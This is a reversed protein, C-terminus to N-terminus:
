CSPAAQRPCGVPQILHCNSAPGSRKCGSQLPLEALAPDPAPFAHLERDTEALLGRADSRQLEDSCPPPLLRAVHSNVHVVLWDFDTDPNRKAADIVAARLRDLEALAAVHNSAM